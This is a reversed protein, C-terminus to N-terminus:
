VKMELLRKFVARAFRRTLSPSTRKLHHVFRSLDLMLVPQDSQIAKVIRKAAEEPTIGLYGPLKVAERKFGKLRTSEYIPSKVVGPYVATVKIGFREVETRLVETMGALGHKSATYAGATPIGALSSASCINVIHGEQREVMQPLLFHITYLPGSLNTGLIWEWEPIDMDKIEAAMTVGANNVLIDVRGFVKLARRCLREVENRDSVDAQVSEVRRDLVEIMDATNKLGVENIDTIVVDSGSRAMELATAQGLGSAAGTILSVKNRLDTM